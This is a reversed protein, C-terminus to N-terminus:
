SFSIFVHAPKLVESLDPPLHVVETWRVRLFCKPLIM